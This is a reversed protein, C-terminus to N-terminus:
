LVPHPLLMVHWAIWLRLCFMPCFFFCYFCISGAPFTFLCAVASELATGCISSAKLGNCHKGKFWCRSWGSSVLSLSPSLSQGGWGCTPGTFSNRCTHPPPSPPHLPPPPSETTLSPNFLLALHLNYSWIFSYPPFTINSVGTRVSTSKPTSVWLGNLLGTPWDWISM